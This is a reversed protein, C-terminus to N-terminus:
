ISVFATVNFNDFNMYHYAVPYCFIEVDTDFLM